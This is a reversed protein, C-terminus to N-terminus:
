LRMGHGVIVLFFPNPSLIGDLKVALLEPQFDQIVAALEQRPHPAFMCDVVRFDHGEGLAAAVAAPGLPFPPAILRSENASIFLIKM